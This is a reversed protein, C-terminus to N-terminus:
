PSCYPKFRDAAADLMEDLGHNDPFQHEALLESVADVSGCQAWFSKRLLEAFEAVAASRILYASAGASTASIDSVGATDQTEIVEGTVGDVWRLYVTAIEADDTAEDHLLLEYLATVDRAFGPEGFDVSDDRFDQDAVARNEYGILRYKRVVDPNFEM